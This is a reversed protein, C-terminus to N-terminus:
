QDEENRKYNDGDDEDRELINRMERWLQLEMM